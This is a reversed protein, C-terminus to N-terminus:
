GNLSGWHNPLCDHGQKDSILEGEMGIGGAAGLVMVSSKPGSEKIAACTTKEDLPKTPVSLWCHSMHTWWRGLTSLYQSIRQSERHGAGEVIVVFRLQWVM